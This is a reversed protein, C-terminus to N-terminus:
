PALVVLHWRTTHIWRDVQSIFSMGVSVEGRAEGESTVRAEMQNEEGQADREGM